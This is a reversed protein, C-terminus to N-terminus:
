RGTRDLPEQDLIQVQAAFVALQRAATTVSHEDPCGFVREAQLFPHVPVSERHDLEVEGLTFPIQGHTRAVTPVGESEVVQAVLLCSPCRLM